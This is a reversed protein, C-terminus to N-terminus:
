HAGPRLERRLPPARCRLGGAADGDAQNQESGGSAGAAVACVWNPIPQPLSTCKPCM